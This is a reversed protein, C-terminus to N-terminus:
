TVVLDNWDGLSLGTVGIIHITGGAHSLITNGGAEAIASFAGGGLDFGDAAIQFNEITDSNTVGTFRFLDAGGGGDMVDGGKGGVLTDNGAGGNLTDAGSSGNLQNDGSNGTILNALANGSGDIDATGTLTLWEVNDASAISVTATSRVQDQSGGGPAEVITDAGPGSLQPNLYVDDGDGGELTDAGDAGRLTDAGGEGRLINDGSNGTIRNALGNGTGQGDGDGTLELDEIEQLADLTYNNASSLVLDHGGGVAETVLDAAANVIYTDDGQGGRMDDAGGRGDIRDGHTSGILLDGGADGLIGISDQASDWMAFAVGSLDATGAVANVILVNRDASGEVIFIAGAGMQDAWFRASWTGSVFHLGEVQAIDAVRFVISGGSGDLTIVDTGSGGNVVEGAAAQGAGTYRFIDAGMGGFMSDAGSGGQMTDSSMFVGDIVDNRSSGILSNNGFDAGFLHIEDDAGFGSMSVGTLDVAAGYIELTAAVPESARVHDIASASIQDSTVRTTLNGQLALEEIGSIVVARMDNLDGLGNSWIVDRGGANSGGDISSGDDMPQAASVQFVDNGAGGSLHDLGGGGTILDDTLSGTLDDDNSTGFLRVQDGAVWNVLSWGAASFAGGNASVVQFTNRFADGTITVNDSIPNAGGFQDPSFTAFASQTGQFIIDTIGAPLLVARYDTTETVILQTM